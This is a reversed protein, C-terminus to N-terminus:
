TAPCGAPDLAGDIRYVSSEGDRLVLHAAPDTAIVAEEPRPYYGFGFRTLVVHDYRDGLLRRWATCPDGDDWGAEDARRVRNSLDLGFMPYTEDTGLVAVRADRVSRFHRHVADMHLGADVYRRELHARQLPWGGVLLAVAVVAVGAGRWGARGQWRVSRAALVVLAVGVLALVTPVLAGGPWAAVREVHPSTAGVALTAVLAALVATRAAPPAVMPLLVAGLVLSPTLYRLNFAFSFGGTLPTVAYGVVGLLAVAGALREWGTRGRLAALLAGALALALVLPWARGLGQELGPLYTGSWTDAGGLGAALSAGTPEVVAAPLVLPGVAVDFWPLPTGAVVWNRAFWFGGTGAVALLWVGASAPRRRWLAVAVVGVVLVAVPVAITVKTGISMGAAMGAIASSGPALRDQTLLAVAALLLAICTVDTSAQGPQTGALAPVGLVVASGLMTLHPTGARRGACWAALLALALWGLNVLPSLFDRSFPAAAMAHVLQGNFPFWRAAEYGLAELGGFSGRQLFRAAFPLHYWLTDPHTMGRGLADVTHTVWQIAVVGTALLAVARALGGGGARGSGTPGGSTVPDGVARVRRALWWSSGGLSWAGVLLPGPALLGVAGLLQGTALLGALWLVVDALVAPAGQWSPVLVRRVAAAGCWLVAVASAMALAGAVYEGAGLRM